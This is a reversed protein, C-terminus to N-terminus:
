SDDLALYDFLYEPLNLKKWTERQHLSSKRARFIRALGSQAERSIFSTDSDSLVTLLRIMRDSGYRTRIASVLCVMRLNAGLYENDLLNALEETKEIEWRGDKVLYVMKCKVNYM